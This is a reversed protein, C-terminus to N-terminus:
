IPSRSFTSVNEAELISLDQFFQFLSLKEAAVIKKM